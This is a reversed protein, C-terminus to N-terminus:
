GVDGLELSRGYRSLVMHRLKALEPDALGPDTDIMQQAVTRAEILLEM